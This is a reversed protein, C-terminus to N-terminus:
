WTLNPITRIRQASHVIGEHNSNVASRKEGLSDDTIDSFYKKPFHFFLENLLEERNTFNKVRFALFILNIIIVIFNAYIMRCDKDLSLMKKNKVYSIIFNETLGTVENHDSIEGLKTLVKEVYSEIQDPVNKYNKMM